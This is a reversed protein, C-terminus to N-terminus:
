YMEIPSKTLSNNPFVKLLHKWNDIVAPKARKPDSYYIPERKKFIDEAKRLDREDVGNINKGHNEKLIMMRLDEQQSDVKELNQFYELINEAEGTFDEDSSIVL